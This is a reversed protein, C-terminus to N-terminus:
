HEVVPQKGNERRRMEEQTAELEEMNQRMEEEQSRLQEMQQQSMELLTQTRANTQMASISAAISKGADGLFGLAYSDFATFSAIEILAIVTENHKFPYITLARPRAEGLGSTIHVYNDPVATIYTPQGELYVQGLLGEGIDVRKTVHKKKDFAYCSVLMLHEDDPQEANLVFLSGQQAGLYKVIFSVTKECLLEFKTQNDRIIDAVKNLGESVWQQRVTDAQRQRMGDRMVLLAGSINHNNIEANAQGFGEWKVELDGQAISKIFSESKKLNDIMGTIVADEDEISVPVNSDFILTRNQHDLKQFLAVRRKQARTLNVIAFVLTPIGVIFLVGQFFMSITLLHYYDNESDTKLQAIAPDVEHSLAMYTEWVATGHDAKIIALAEPMNGARYLEIAKDMLEFYGKMMEDMKRLLSIDVGLSPLTQEMYAMNPRYQNKIKIYTGVFAENGVLLYGRLSMDINNLDSIIMAKRAGIDSLRYQTAINRSMASKYSYTIVTDAVILAIVISLAIKAGHKTLLIALKSKM